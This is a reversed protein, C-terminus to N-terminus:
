VWATSFATVCRTQRHACSYQVIFRAVSICTFVTLKHNSVLSVKTLM